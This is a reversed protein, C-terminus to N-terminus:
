KRGGKKRWIRVNSQWVSLVNQLRKMAVVILAAKATNDVSGGDPKHEEIWAEVAAVQAALAVEAEEILADWQHVYWPTSDDEEGIFGGEFFNVGDTATKTLFLIQGLSNEAPSGPAGPVEAYSFPMEVGFPDITTGIFQHRTDPYIGPLTGLEVGAVTPAEGGSVTYSVPVGIAALAEGAKEIATRIADVDAIFARTRESM